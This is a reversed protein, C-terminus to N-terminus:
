VKPLFWFWLCLVTVPAKLHTQRWGCPYTQRMNGTRNISELDWLAADWGIWDTKRLKQAPNTQTTTTVIPAALSYGLTVLMVPNRNNRVARRKRPIESYFRVILKHTNIKLLNIEMSLHLSYIYSNTGKTNIEFFESFLKILQSSNSKRM